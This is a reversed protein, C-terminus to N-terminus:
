GDARLYTKSAFRVKLRLTKDLMHEWKVNHFSHPYQITPKAKSESTVYNFVAADHGLM